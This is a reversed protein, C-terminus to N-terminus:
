SHAGALPPYPRRLCLHYRASSPQTFECVSSSILFSKVVFPKTQTKCVSQPAGGSLSGINMNELARGAPNMPAPSHQAGSTIGRLSRAPFATRVPKVVGGCRNQDENCRADCSSIASGLAHSASESPTAPLLNM